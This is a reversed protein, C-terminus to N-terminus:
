KGRKLNSKNLAALTLMALGIGLWGGTSNAVIDSITPFRSPLFLLQSLEIFCSTAPMAAVVLWLRRTDTALLLFFGLPMFMIINATFEWAIESFTSPVGIRHLFNLIAMSVANHASTPSQPTLTILAIVASTLAFGGWGVRQVWPKHRAAVGEYQDTAM